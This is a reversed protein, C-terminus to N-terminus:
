GELEEPDFYTLAAAAIGGEPREQSEKSFLNMMESAVALRIPGTILMDLHQIWEEPCNSVYEDYCTILGNLVERVELKRRILVRIKNDVGKNMYDETMGEYLEFGGSQIGFSMTLPSQASCRIGHGLIQYKVHYNGNKTFIDCSQVDEVDHYHDDEIVRSEKLIFPQIPYLFGPLIPIYNFDAIV